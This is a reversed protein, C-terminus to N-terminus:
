TWIPRVEMVAMVLGGDFETDGVGAEVLMFLRSRLPELLPNERKALVEAITIRPSPSPSPVVRVPPTSPPSPPAEYRRALFDDLM